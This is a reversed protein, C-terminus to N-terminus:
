GQTGRGQQAAPYRKWFLALNTIRVGSLCQMTASRQLWFEHAGPLPGLLSSAQIPARWGGGYSHRWSGGIGRPLRILLAKCAAPEPQLVEEDPAPRHAM